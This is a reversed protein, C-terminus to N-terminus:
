RRDMREMEVACKIFAGLGKPDNQIVPESMYYEFSGDRYPKGGLGSVKVTGELNLRGQEDESIFREIIGQYGKRAHKKYTDPLYGERTGKALTYTLMASASAEPYNKDRDPLDVIDYWLGTRTDQVQVVAEALRNLIGKLSDAGPHEKPFYDLADVLAMGYWGLARGWVHPSRGTLSDAWLQERSEDWGHYLLGTVTDRSHKEMLAFQRTVDNFITDEGFEAAYAAYFPQAMYLGDLWMQHPYILKHWFGGESTRPHTRLQNRLLEVAKRYKEEGTEQYLMLLVKGNNVHDINYEGPRYRLISGDEQVYFDMQRRIYDFWQEDGTERWVGEMGKLIVGQDYSWKVPKGPERLNFSDPWLEMATRSLEESYLKQEPHCSVLTMVTGIPLLLLAIKYACQFLIKM